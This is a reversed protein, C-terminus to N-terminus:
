ELAFERGALTMVTCHAPGDCRDAPGEHTAAVALTRIGTGLSPAAIDLQNGTHAIGAVAVGANSDFNRSSWVLAGSADALEANAFSIEQASEWTVHIPSTLPSGLVLDNAFLKSAEITWTATRDTIVLSSTARFQPELRSFAAGTCNGDILSEEWGGRGISDMPLGDFTATADDTIRVCDINSIWVTIESASTNAGYINTPDNHAEIQVTPSDIDALATPTSRNMTCAAVLPVIIALTWRM